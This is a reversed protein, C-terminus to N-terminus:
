TVPAKTSGTDPGRTSGGTPATTTTALVLLALLALGASVAHATEWQDRYAPWDPPLTAATWAAITQNVPRNGLAFALLTGSLCVATIAPPLVASRHRRLLVVTAVSAALGITEAAGGVVAFGGYFTQQVHLWEPGTLARSGPSQLVHSSTLGAVLAVCLLTVSRLWRVIM